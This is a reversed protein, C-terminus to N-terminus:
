PGPETPTVAGDRFDFRELIESGTTLISYFNEFLTPLDRAHDRAVNFMTGIYFILILVAIGSKIPMALIFVQLQPAFRSVIALAFEALFMIAIVPAALVFMLRFGADFVELMMAPFEDILLPVGRAVPWFEFSQYLLSLILLFGGSAFFYTVFAQSFLIGLPSTEHGQLPDVSAAIAAGRQNDIFAGVSQIAWFVWSVLYGMVFGIAFEKAFLITFSIVDMDFTEAFAINVPVLPVTIVLIAATRAMRPVASPALLQSYTIFAYPRAITLLVAVLLPKADEYLDLIAAFDM